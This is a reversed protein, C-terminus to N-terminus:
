QHSGNIFPITLYLHASGHKWPSLEDPKRGADQSVGERDTKSVERARTITGNYMFLSKNLVQLMKNHKKKIHRGEKNSQFCFGRRRIRQMNQVQSVVQFIASM